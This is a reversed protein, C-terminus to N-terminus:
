KNFDKYNDEYILYDEDEHEIHGSSYNEGNVLLKLKDLEFNEVFTNGIATLIVLEGSTGSSPVASLDLTGIREGGAAPAEVGPGSKEGGEIEFSNAIAGEELVGHQILLDVLAQADLVKVDENSKELGTADSNGYYIFAMDYVPANPDAVKEVVEAPEQVPTRSTTVNAGVNSQEQKKTPSCAALSIVMLAGMLCVTLKKM